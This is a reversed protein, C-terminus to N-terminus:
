AHNSRHPLVKKHHGLGVVATPVRPHAGGFNGSSSRTVKTSPVCLSHPFM